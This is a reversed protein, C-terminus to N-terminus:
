PKNMYEQAYSYNRPYQSQFNMSCTSFSATGGTAYLANAEASGEYPNKVGNKITGSYSCLPLESTAGSNQHRAVMDGGDFKQVHHSIEHTLIFSADKTDNRVGCQNFNIDCGNTNHAHIAYINNVCLSDGIPSPNKTTYCLKITPTNSCAKDVFESLSVLDTTM